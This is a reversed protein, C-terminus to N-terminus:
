AVGKIAAAKFLPSIMEIWTWGDELPGVIGSSDISPDHIIQDGLCVVCHGVDNSSMATLIYPTTPAWRKMTQLVEAPTAQFPMLTLAYGRTLLWQRMWEVQSFDDDTLRHQHPVEDRDLGIICAVCTRYCDGVLGEDPRHRFAQQHRPIAAAIAEIITESM